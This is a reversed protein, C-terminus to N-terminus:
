RVIGELRGVEETLRKLVERVGIAHEEVYRARLTANLELVSIKNMIKRYISEGGSSGSQPPPIMTQPGLSVVPTAQSPPPPQPSPVSLSPTVETTQPTPDLTPQSTSTDSPSDSVVPPPQPPNSTVPISEVDVSPSSGGDILADQPTSTHEPAPDVSPQPDTKTRAHGPELFPEVSPDVPHTVSTTEVVAGVPTSPAPDPDSKQALTHAPIQLQEYRNARSDWKWEELHTLGYVRLLSVPCYFESGYHSHFDIRIYRYFDRLSTPPHFSQEYTTLWRCVLLLPCPICVQVGRINRARYTGVTTWEPVDPTYTRAVSVTFDKFVGSFFEFNALQVTDIRIDECLEVIVFQDEEKGDATKTACPSLM